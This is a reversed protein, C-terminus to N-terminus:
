FAALLALTGTDQRMVGIPGGSLFVPQNSQDHRYEIRGVLELRGLRTTGEATATVEDVRQRVSTTFGDPDSFHEGRVAAALWPLVLCRAYGGVGWWSVGGSSADIAYDATAAVSLWPRLAYTGYADFVDRFSLRPDSLHTPARELGAAYTVVLDLNPTTQWSAAVAFSRMGNGEALNTNWGNLWFGSVALRSTVPYTLRLGTHYTPEALTFLLGRSYNWNPLAENDEYGVPTDFKGVDLTIGGVPLAATVFGQEVYSLARSLDPRSTSAPDAAFYASPMDGVGLDLRFGVLDPHHAVTLRLLDLAPADRHVDFARLQVSGGPPERIQMYLDVMAHVDVARGKGVGDYADTAAGGGAQATGQTACVIGVLVATSAVPRLAPM